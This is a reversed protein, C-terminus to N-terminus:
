EEIEFVPEYSPETTVRGLPIVPKKDILSIKYRSLFHGLVIQAEAMAFHLGPCTRPGLGFPIFGPKQMWTNTSGDFRRPKFSTPQDWFKRHRHLVWPSIWIQTKAAIPKGNVVDDSVAERLILPVPPYLRMTELLVSRMFPWNQLDAIKTMRDLPYGKLEARLRAQSAQDQSLVYCTWFMLRATTESGTVFLTACHDRVEDNSLPAGAADRMNLLTDLLDSENIGKSQARRTAVLSDILAFWDAQFARRGGFAFAFSDEHEAFADIFSPRGPGDFYRRLLVALQERMEHRPMSFMASLIAELATEHFAASLNMHTQKELRNMFFAAADHLCPVIRNTHAPTFAPAAHRRHRRWEQGEALIIGQGALPRGLRRVSQPRRYNDVNTALVHRIDEPDNLLASNIGLLRRQNFAVDFSYDPWVALNSKTVTRMLKWLSLDKAHIEPAPPIFHSAPVADTSTSM